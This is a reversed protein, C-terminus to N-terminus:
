HSIIINLTKMLSCSPSYRVFKIAVQSSNLLNTGLHDGIMLLCIVSVTLTIFLSRLSSSLPSV